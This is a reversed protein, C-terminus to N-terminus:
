SSRGHHNDDFWGRDQAELFTAGTLLILSMPVNGYATMTGGIAAMVLKLVSRLFSNIM